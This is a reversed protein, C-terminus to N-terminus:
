RKEAEMVFRQRTDAIETKLEQRVHAETEQRAAAVKAEHEDRFDDFSTQLEKM